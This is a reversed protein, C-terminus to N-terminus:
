TQIPFVSIFYTEGGKSPPTAPVISKIITVFRSGPWPPQNIGNKKREYCHYVDAVKFHFNKFRESIREQVPGSRRLIRIL